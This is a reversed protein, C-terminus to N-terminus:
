RNIKSVICDNCTRSCTKVESNCPNREPIHCQTVPYDRGSTTFSCQAKIRLPSSNHNIFTTYEKPSKLDLYRTIRHCIGFSCHTCGCWQSLQYDQKSYCVLGLMSSNIHYSMTYKVAIPNVGPPLLATCM